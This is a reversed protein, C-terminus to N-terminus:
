IAHMEVVCMGITERETTVITPIEYIELTETELTETELTGTHQSEITTITLTMMDVIVIAFTETVTESTNETEQIVVKM